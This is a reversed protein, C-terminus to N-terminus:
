AEEVVVGDLGSAEFDFLQHEANDAWLQRAVEEAQEPSAAEIEASHSLWELVVVRYARLRPASM